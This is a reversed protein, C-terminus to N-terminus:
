LFVQVLINSMISLPTKDKTKIPAIKRKQLQTGIILSIIKAEM